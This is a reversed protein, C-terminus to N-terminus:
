IEMCNNYINLLYQAQESIDFGCETIIKSYLERSPLNNIRNEIASIWEQIPKELNCWTILDTKEMEKSITDSAIIPIGSCQAEVGAVSLGEFHSPFMFIDMACLFSPIDNQQGCFIVKNELNLKKVYEKCDELLSGTGVFLLVINNNQKILENFMKITFIQNKQYEFRGVQGLVITSDTIGLEKRKTKRLNENFSFREVDIANNLVFFNSKKGYLFVGAEQSCALRQMDVKRFRVKNITHFFSKIIGQVSGKPISSNHSHCIIKAGCKKSALIPICNAMSLMNIHIIEYHNEKIINCLNKYYSIIRTRKCVPHIKCGLKIFEEEFWIHKPAGVLGVSINDSKMHSVYDYICKEIGGLKNYLGIILVKM